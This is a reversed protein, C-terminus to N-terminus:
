SFIEQPNREQTRAVPESRFLNPFSIEEGRKVREVWTRLLENQERKRRVRGREIVEEFNERIMYVIRDM